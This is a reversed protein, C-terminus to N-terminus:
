DARAEVVEYLPVDRNESDGGPYFFPMPLSFVPNLQYHSRASELPEQMEVGDLLLYVGRGDDLAHAVFDLWEDESWYAPRVVDRSAYLTVAGGNLSAAM